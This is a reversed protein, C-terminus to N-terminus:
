PGTARAVFLQYALAMEPDTQRMRQRTTRVYAEGRSILPNSRALLRAEAELAKQTAPDPTLRSRNMIQIYAKYAEGTGPQIQNLSNYVEERVGYYERLKPATAELMRELPTNTRRIMDRVKESIVAPASNLLEERAQFFASWDTEGTLENLYEPSDPRIQYYTELLEDAPHVQQPNRGTRKAYDLREEMTVPVDSFEPQNKLFDMMFSRQAQLAQYERRAGPGDIAGSQWQESLNAVDKEFQEQLRESQEWFKDIKRYMEQETKPRLSISANVWGDYNPITERMQRRQFRSVPLVEYPSIGLRRLEDQEVGTIGLYEETAARSDEIFQRKSEPRYRLISTQQLAIMRLAAERQAEHIIAIAESDDADEVLRRVEAPNRNYKDAIVQDTVFQAYRHDFTFDKLMEPMPGGTAAWGHLILNLPPPSIAGAEGQLFSFGATIPPAFYFGGRGLWDLGEEVGGRFGGHLEPFDRAVTHRLGAVITGKMPNVEMNFPTPSYGYDWDGMLMAYHKALVPKQAALNALRPWRRSEYMWFPMFRQMIFDFTSRDDYNVFTRRYETNTARVAETQARRFERMLDPDAEMMKAVRDLASRIQGQTGPGAPPNAAIDLEKQIFERISAMEGELVSNFQRQVEPIEAMLEEVSIQRAETQTLVERGKETLELRVKGDRLRVPAAVFGENVLHVTAADPFLDGKTQVDRLRQLQTANLAPREAVEVTKSYLRELVERAATPDDMGAAIALADDDGRLALNELATQVEEITQPTGGLEESINQASRLFVENTLGTVRRLQEWASGTEVSRRFKKIEANVRKLRNEARKRGLDTGARAVSSEAGTLAQQLREWQPRMFEPILNQFAQEREQLLRTEEGQLETIRGAEGKERALKLQQRNVDVAKDYDRLQNPLRPNKRRTVDDLKTKLVKYHQSAVAIQDLLQQQKQQLAAQEIDPAFGSRQVVEDYQTRLVSLNDLADGLASEVGSILMEQNKRSLNRPLAELLTNWGTRATNSLAAQQLRQNDWHEAIKTTVDSWFAATREEKPTQSFWELKRARLVDAADSAAQGAAQYSDFIDDISRRVQERLLPTSAVDASTLANLLPTRSRELAQNYLQRIRGVEDTLLTDMERWIEDKATPNIVKRARESMSATLERPLMNLDDAMQQLMRLQAAAEEPTTAPRSGLAQIEPEWESRIGEVTFKHRKLTEDIMSEELEQSNQANIGGPRGAVERARRRAEPVIEPNDTLVSNQARRLINEETYENALDQVANPNGTSVLSVVQAGVDAQLHLPVGGMEARVGALFDDIRVPSIGKSELVKNYNRHYSNAWSARRVAQGMQGSKNIFWGGTIDFLKKIPTNKPQNFTGFQLDILSQGTPRLLDTPIGGSEVPVTAVFRNWTSDTVWMKKFNNMGLMSMIVDEAVNMFMFGSFALHSLSWPRILNPEIKRLYVNDIFGFIHKDIAGAVGKAHQEDLRLRESFSQIAERRRQGITEEVVEGSLRLGGKKIADAELKGVQQAIAQVADKPAMESVADIMRERSKKGLVLDMHNLVNRLSHAGADEPFRTLDGLVERTVASETANIREPGFANVAAQTVEGITKNVQSTWHPQALGRIVPLESVKKGFILQTAADPTKFAGRIVVNPAEDIARLPFLLPKLLPVAKSAKAPLGFGVLNLPDFLIEMAGKVGGPTDTENYADRAARFYDAMSSQRGQQAKDYAIKRQAAELRKEFGQQGPVATFAGHMVTAAIPVVVNENYWEIAGVTNAVGQRLWNSKGEAEGLAAQIREPSAPAFTPTRDFYPTIDEGILDGTEMALALGQSQGLQLKAAEAFQKKLQEKEEPTTASTYNQAFNVARPDPM